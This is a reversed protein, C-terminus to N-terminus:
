MAFLNLVDAASRHRLVAGGDKGEAMDLAQRVNRLRISNLSLEAFLM